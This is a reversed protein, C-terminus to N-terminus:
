RFETWLKALKRRLGTPEYEPRLTLFETLYFILPLLLFAITYYFESQSDLCASYAQLPKETMNKLQRCLRSREEVHSQNMM